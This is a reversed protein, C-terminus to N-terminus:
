PCLGGVFREQVIKQMVPVSSVCEPWICQLEEVDLTDGSIEDAGDELVEGCYGLFDVPHELAFKLLDSTRETPDPSAPPLETQPELRRETVSEDIQEMETPCYRHLVACVKCYVSFFNSTKPGLCLLSRKSMKDFYAVLSKDPPAPFKLSMAAWAKENAEKKTLGEARFKQRQGCRYESAAEWRGDKQLLGAGSM